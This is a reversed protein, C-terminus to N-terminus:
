SKLAIPSVDVMADTAFFYLDNHVIVHMVLMVNETNVQFGIPVDKHKDRTQLYSLRSQEQEDAVCTENCCRRGIDVLYVWPALVENQSFLTIAHQLLNSWQFQM